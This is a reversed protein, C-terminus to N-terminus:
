DVKGPLLHQMGMLASRVQPDAIQPRLDTFVGHQVNEALLIAINDTALWHRNAPPRKLVIREIADLHEPWLVETFIAACGFCRAERWARGTTVGAGCEPCMPNWRGCNIEMVLSKTSNWPKKGQKGMRLMHAERYMQMTVPGVKPRQFSTKIYAGQVEEVCGIKTM